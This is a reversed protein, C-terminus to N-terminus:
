AYGKRVSLTPPWSPEAPPPAAVPLTLRGGSAVYAVGAEKARVRRELALVCGLATSRQRETTNLADRMVRILQERGDKDLGDTDSFAVLVADVPPARPFPLQLTALKKPRSVAAVVADRQADGGDGDGGGAQRRIRDM